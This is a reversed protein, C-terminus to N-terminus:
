QPTLQTRFSLAETLDSIEIRDHQEIDAITRAVKIMKFYSRHSLQLRKTATHLLDQASPSIVLQRVM